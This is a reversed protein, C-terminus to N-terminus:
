SFMVEYGAKVWVSGIASGVKGSGVISIKMKGAESAVAAFPIGTLMLAALVAASLQLIRRRNFKSLAKSRMM